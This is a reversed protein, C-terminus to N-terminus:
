HQTMVIREVQNASLEGNNQDGKRRKQNWTFSYTEFFSSNLEQVKHGMNMSMSCGHQAIPTNNQM